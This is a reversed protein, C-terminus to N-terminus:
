RHTTCGSVYGHTARVSSREVVDDCDVMIFELTVHVDPFAKFIMNAIAKFGEKGAPLKPDSFHHVFNSALLNDLPAMSAGGNKFENVFRHVVTKYEQTSM